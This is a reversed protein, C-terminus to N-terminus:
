FNTNNIRYFIDFLLYYFISAFFWFIVGLFDTKRWKELEFVGWNKDNKPGNKLHM